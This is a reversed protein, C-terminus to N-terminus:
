RAVQVVGCLCACLYSFCRACLVAPGTCSRQWHGTPPKGRVQRWLAGLESRVPGGSWVRSWAPRAAPFSVRSGSGGPSGRPFPRGGARLTGGRVCRGAARARAAPATAERGGAIAWCRDRDPPLSASVPLKPRATRRRGGASGGRPREPEGVGAARRPRPSRRACWAPRKRATLLPPRRRRGPTGPVRSQPHDPRM